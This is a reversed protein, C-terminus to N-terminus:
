DEEDTDGAPAAYAMITEGAKVKQKLAVRVETGPPLYLETRSGFKIMGFKEGKELADGVGCRCVIRRAVAGSIQRVTMPGLDTEMRIANSENLETTDARMANKFAGNKHKVSQVTGSVPARNIHVNFVSLFISVRRCPGDYHPTEPLDEIGVVTGDAPSVVEGPGAAVTRTPDRFFFLAFAGCALALLPGAVAVSHYLFATGVVGFAFLPMYIYLGETWASFSKKM